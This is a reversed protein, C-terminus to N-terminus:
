HCADKKKRKNFYTYICQIGAGTPRPQANV